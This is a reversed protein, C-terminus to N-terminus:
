ELDLTHNLESEVMSKAYTISDEPDTQAKKEIRKCEKIVYEVAFKKSTVFSILEEQNKEIQITM